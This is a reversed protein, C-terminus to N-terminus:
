IAVFTQPENSLCNMFGSLKWIVEIRDDPYVMVSDILLDVLAESLKGAQMAKKAAQLSDADPTSKKSENLIAEHVHLSNALEADIATKQTKYEDPFISGSVLAEYLRQKEDRLREIRGMYEAAAPSNVAQVDDAHLGAQLVIKAQRKVSELVVGELENKLIRLKHCASDTAARTFRCHFAANKTSSIIMVHGCHGCVVKGRLASATQKVYRKTTNLERKRIPEGKIRLQEQVSDFLDQTIIAPHHGPIRIWDEEANTIQKRSGVATMRTKGAIYTGLYQEDRLIVLIGPKKWVYRFEDEVMANRCHNKYASPSLRQEAYLQREIDTLGKKAAYMEFIMRVTEAAEPDIVMNRKDDLTYGFVCGKSVAEGCLAKQRKVSRIKASLDRSYYENILFKFSVEMGGTDGDNALSDYGDSVAIFRVRFVPFVREIFYGTEIADRGFRSFDKVLICNVKGARVLELLEQVAPREFNTGSFGNDVFELVEGGDLDSDM